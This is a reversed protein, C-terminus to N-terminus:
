AADKETSHTQGARIVRRAARPNRLADGWDTGGILLFDAPAGVTLERSALGMARAANSSIAGVWDAPDLHSALCALRLTDIADYCGRPYFPDAVNDAGLVVNVGANRLEQMPALGRLRPSRGQQMDQLYLNTTPLVTLATGARAAAEMVRAVDEEPRISLSCAHGCLVRGSMAYKATLAVITDFGCADISLGEDVHFDLPLGHHEALRFVKELKADLDENCYAFCGLVGGDAAVRRAIRRGSEEDSLLDLPVLAALQLSLKGQWDGALQNLVSWALPPEPQVWDVHSRLASLGNDYAEALGKSARSHLDDETWHDADAHCAEIAGFLGPKIDSCRSITFTKDLHVHPDVPLPMAVATAPGQTPTIAAIRGDRLTLSVTEGNLRICSLDISM